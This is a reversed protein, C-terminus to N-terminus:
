LRSVLVRTVVCVEAGLTAGIRVCRGVWGDSGRSVTSTVLWILGMARLM